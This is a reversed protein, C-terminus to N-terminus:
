EWPKWSMRSACFSYLHFSLKPSIAWIQRPPQMMRARKRWFIVSAKPLFGRRALRRRSGYKLFVTLFAWFFQRLTMARATFCPMGTGVRPEASEYKSEYRM